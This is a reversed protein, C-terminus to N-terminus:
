IIFKQRLEYNIKEIYKLIKNISTLEINIYKKYSIEKYIFDIIEHYHLKKKLYLEQAINNLIMFLIQGSHSLKKFYNIKNFLHFRKDMPYILDLNKIELFKKKAKLFDFQFFSRLPKVLTILMNNEFCNISVTSDKFMIVSHVYAERSILFDINNIPIEFIISLEYIELLKNIFNSSDILNNNGMVWKPHSLVQSHNVKQLNIKKKFYFPGGSATIYARSIDLYNHNSNLFSFHESDLPILYNQSKKFKKILFNGGAIILEKNAIAIHSFTNNNLIINIYKLSYSGYDLFYILDLKNNKLFSLFRVEDDLNNLVFSFNINNKKKLYELKNKNKFCTAAFIDINKKHCFNCLMKGLKGTSGIVLIKPKM